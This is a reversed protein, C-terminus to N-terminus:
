FPMFGIAFARDIFWAGGLLLIAGSFYKRANQAFSKRNIWAIVPWVLLVIALQGLEVGINFSLLCQVFGTTPLEMGRLVNAFGFGHILGFAFTLMWRHQPEKRWINEAAVYVITGAIATEVLRSPLSVVQLAALILTITHAVTFSSVIKVLDWFRGIVILGLLFLIHDYGLFIHEVGLKLFRQIHSATSEQASSRRSTAVKAAANTEVNAAPASENAFSVDYLYDPEFRSFVVAHEHRGQVFTGLVTHRDGLEGFFDFTLAVESPLAKVPNRFTFSILRQHFDKKGIGDPADDPWSPPSAAGAEVDEGNVELYIHDRLFEGIVTAGSDLEEHTLQGDKNRDLDTIKLLTVIDYTFKFEVLNSSIAVHLYSTDPNHALAPSPLGIWLLWMLLLATRFTPRGQKLNAEAFYRNVLKAGTM